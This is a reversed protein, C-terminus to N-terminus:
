IIKEKALKEIEQDSLALLGKYIEENHEGLRPGTWDISGPTASLKPVIGQMKIDGLEPDRVTVVM